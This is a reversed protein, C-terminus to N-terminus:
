VSRLVPCKFIGFLMSADQAAALVLNLFSLLIDLMSCFTYIQYHLCAQKSHGGLHLFSLFDSFCGLECVAAAVVV